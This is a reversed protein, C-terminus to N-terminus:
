AFMNLLRPDGLRHLCPVDARKAAERSNEQNVSDPSQEWLGTYLVAGFCADLVGKVDLEWQDGVHLIETPLLNLRRAAEVFIAPHPKAHGVECSTVVYRFRLKTQARFFEQWSAERRASNTIAIIPLSRAELIAILNEAEPNAPPPDKAFGIASYASALEAFPRVPTAGLLEAYSILLAEPDVEIPDLEKAQLRLRAKEVAHEIRSIQALRGNPMRLNERLFQLRFTRLREDSGPVDM